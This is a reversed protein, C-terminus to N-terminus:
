MAPQCILTELVLYMKQVFPQKEITMKTKPHLFQNFSNLYSNTALSCWSKKQFGMLPCRGFVNQQLNQPPRGERFGVAWGEFIIIALIHKRNKGYDRLHPSLTLKYSPFNCYVFPPPLELTDKHEDTGPPFSGMKVLIKWIAQNLWWSSFSPSTTSPNTSPDHLYQGQHYWSFM